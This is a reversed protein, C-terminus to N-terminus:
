IYEMDLRVKENHLWHPEATKQSLKWNLFAIFRELNYAKIRKEKRWWEWGGRGGGQGVVVLLTPMCVGWEEELGKPKGRDSVSLGQSEQSVNM